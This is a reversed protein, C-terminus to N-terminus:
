INRHQSDRCIGFKVIFSHSASHRPVIDVGGCKSCQPKGNWLIEEVFLQAVTEDPFRERFSYTSLTQAIHKKTAMGCILM